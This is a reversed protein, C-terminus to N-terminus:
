RCEVDTIRELRPEVTGQAHHRKQNRIYARVWPLDRQGFSVVGYGTQWNLLPERRGFQYNLDHSSGGKLQGIWDSLLLTPPVTVALHIHNATGNIEHLWVDPTAKIRSSLKGHVLPELRPTILNLNTKTHWTLHLNIESYYKRSM